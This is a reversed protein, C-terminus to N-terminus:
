QEGRRMRFTDSKVVAVLLEELTMDSAQLETVIQDIYPIDSIGPERGLAYTLTKSAACSIFDESGALLEVMELGGDFAEGTPLVGTADIIQGADVDRYRGIADYHELGLGIPDMMSHCAACTPDNRHQELQERM